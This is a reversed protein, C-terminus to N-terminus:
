AKSPETDIAFLSGGPLNIQYRTSRGGGSLQRLYGKELLDSLHRTATAKFGLQEASMGRVESSRVTGAGGVVM